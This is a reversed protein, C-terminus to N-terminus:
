LRRLILRHNRVAFYPNISSSFRENTRGINQRVNQGIFSVKGIIKSFLNRKSVDFGSHAM